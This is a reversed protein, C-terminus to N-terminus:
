LLLFQNEWWEWPWLNVGRGWMWTIGSSARQNRGRVRGPRHKLITAGLWCFLKDTQPLIINTCAGEEMILSPVTRNFVIRSFQFYMICSSMQMEAALFVGGMNGLFLLLSGLRRLATVYLLLIATVSKIRTQAHSTQTWCALWIVVKLRKYSNCPCTGRKLLVELNKKKSPFYKM